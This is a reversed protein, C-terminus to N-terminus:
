LVGGYVGIKCWEGQKGSMWVEKKLCDKMTDIWRKRPRSVSCGSVCVGVYVRKAIRDNEMREVHIFWQLVSEDIKKDVGKTVGCLQRIRENPLKDVRKIGLLGSLNDIQVARIRSREKNRWIVSESGYTLVPVLM